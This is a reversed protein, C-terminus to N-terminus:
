HARVKPAQSVRPTSGFIPSDKKFTFGIFIMGLVTLVVIFLEAYKKLKKQNIYKEYLFYLITLGYGLWIFKFSTAFVIINFKFGYIIFLPLSFDKGFSILSQIKKNLKLQPSIIDLLFMGLTLGGLLFIALESFSLYTFLKFISVGFETFKVLIFTFYFLLSFIFFDSSFEKIRRTNFKLQLFSKLFELFYCVWILGFGLIPFFSAISFVSFNARFIANWFYFTFTFVAAWAPILFNTYLNLKTRKPNEVKNPETKTEIKKLSKNPTKAEKTDKQKSTSKTKKPM